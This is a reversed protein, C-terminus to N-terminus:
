HIIFVMWVHVLHRITQSYKLHKRTQSLLGRAPRKKSRPSCVVRCLYSVLVSVNEKSLCHSLLYSQSEISFPKEPFIMTSPDKKQNPLIKHNILCNHRSAPPSDSTSHTSSCTRPRLPTGAALTATDALGDTSSPAPRTRCVVSFIPTRLATPLVQLCMDVFKQYRGFHFWLWKRTNKLAQYYVLQGKFAELYSM